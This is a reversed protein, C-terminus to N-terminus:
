KMASSSSGRTAMHAVVPVGFNLGMYLFDEFNSDVAQGARREPLRRRRQEGASAPQVIYRWINGGASCLTPRRPQMVGDGNDDFRLVIPSPTPFANPYIATADFNRWPDRAGGLFSLITTPNPTTVTPQTNQVAGFDMSRDFFVRFPFTNSGTGQRDTRQSDAPEVTIGGENLLRGPDGPDRISNTDAGGGPRAPYFVNESMRHM